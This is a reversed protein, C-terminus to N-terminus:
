IGIQQLGKECNGLMARERACGVHEVAGLRRHADLDPTEFPLEADPQKVARPLARCQAGCTVLEADIRLPKEVEIRLRDVHKARAPAFGHDAKAHPVITM